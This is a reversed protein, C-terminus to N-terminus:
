PLETTARVEVQEPTWGFLDVKITRPTSFWSGFTVTVAGALYDCNGGPCSPTPADELVVRDASGDPVSRLATTVLISCNPVDFPGCDVMPGGCSSLFLALAATLLAMARMVQRSHWLPSAKGSWLRRRWHWETRPLSAM